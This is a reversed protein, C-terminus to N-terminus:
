EVITLSVNEFVLKEDAAVYTIEASANAAPVIIKSVWKGTTPYITQQENTLTVTVEETPVALVKFAKIYNGNFAVTQDTISPTIDAIERIGIANVTVASLADYHSDPVVTLQEGELASVTKSQTRSTVNVVVPSYAYGTSATYTGNSTVNLNTVTVNSTSSSGDRSVLTEFGNADTTGTVRNGRQKISVIDDSEADLELLFEEATILNPDGIVCRKGLLTGICVKTNPYAGVSTRM